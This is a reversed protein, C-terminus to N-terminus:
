VSFSAGRGRLSSQRRPKGIQPGSRLHRPGSASASCMREMDDGTRRRLDNENNSENSDREAQRPYAGRFFGSSM